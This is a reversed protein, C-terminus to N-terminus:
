TWFVAIAVNVTTLGGIIWYAAPPAVPRRRNAFILVLIVVLIVLKVGVKAHDLSEDLAEDVGVLAAGTVLQTLAGHLMGNTVQKESAALQALFGGLLAALGVFHLFILLLRLFDV